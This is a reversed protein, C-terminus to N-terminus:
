EARRQELAEAPDDSQLDRYYAASGATFWTDGTAAPVIWGKWLRAKYDAKPSPAAPAESATSESRAAENEAVISRLSDTPEAAFMRYGSSYLGDNRAYEEKQRKS